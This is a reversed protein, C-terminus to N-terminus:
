DVNEPLTIEYLTAGGEGCGAHPELGLEQYARELAVPDLRLAPYTRKLRDKVYKKAMNQEIPRLPQAGQMRSRLYEFIAGTM